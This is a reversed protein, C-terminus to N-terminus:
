NYKSAYGMLRFQIGNTTNSYYFIGNSALGSYYDGDDPDMVYVRGTSDQYGRIVAQHYYM